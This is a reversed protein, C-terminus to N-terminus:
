PTTIRELTVLIQGNRRNTFFTAPRPKGAPGACLRRFNGHMEYIGSYSWGSDPARAPGRTRMEFAKPTTSPDITSSGEAVVISKFLVAWAGDAGYLVSLMSVFEPELTKGGTEVAVVRWLGASVARDDEAASVRTQGTAAIAHMCAMALLCGLFHSRM